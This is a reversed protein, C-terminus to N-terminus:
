VPQTASGGANSTVTVATVKAGKANLTLSFRGNGLNNMAAPPININATIKLTLLASLNNTSATVSVSTAGQKNQQTATIITVIDAVPPTPTTAPATTTPPPVPTAPCVTPVPANAGPWPSLQGVITPTTPPTALPNGPVFPGGGKALFPIVEFLLPFMPDGFTLLEPFVFDFIPQIFQGALVGGAGPATGTSLRFGVQRTAPSVDTKGLRYVARGLPAAQNPLMQLLPRETVAGTCPDVDMAFWKLITSPDTTFAVSRTEAIEGGQNTVVAYIASEVTVYAPKSGPATYAGINADLAYVAMSGGITTGSFTIYDGVALPMALRPDPDTPGVATPDKFTSHHIDTM